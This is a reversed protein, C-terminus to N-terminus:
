EIGNSLEEFSDVPVMGLEKMAARVLIDNIDSGERRAQEQLKALVDTPLYTDILIM